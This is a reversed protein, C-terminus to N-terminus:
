NEVKKSNLYPALRGAAELQLLRLMQAKVLPDVAIRGGNRAILEATEANRIGAQTAIRRGAAGLALSGAGAVGGAVPGGVANGIAFPVGAGMGFSVAGTPALKGVYRAANSLKTGRSVDEIADITEPTFGREQGKIIQRDLNRYETRLANEFGSGSFQGARAGALERAEELKEANIYRRAIGRAKKLEPALPATWNDFEELMKRAIRQESPDTGAAAESLVKRVTQMQKPTMEGNAYDATLNLAEKAKPYAESVRGTPSVLGEDTAVKRISRALASTQRQSARVGNLEAQEYMASAQRKLDQVTPVSKAALRRAARNASAYAATGGLLSGALEGGFEALRNDPAIDKATAAGIGGTVAPIMARAAQGVTAGSAALPVAASGVSQGVRRVFRRGPDKSEAGVAGARTLKDNIWDSGFVPRDSVGLQTGAVRNIGAAGARLVNNAIDVPFGLTSAIGENVGSMGQSVATENYGSAPNMKDLRAQLQSRTTGEPVNKIITGDRLRVDPM